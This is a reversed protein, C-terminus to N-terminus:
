CGAAALNIWPDGLSLLRVPSRAREGFVNLVGHVSGSADARVRLPRSRRRAVSATARSLTFM